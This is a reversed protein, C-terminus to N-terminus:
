ELLAGSERETNAHTELVREAPGAGAKRVARPAADSRRFEPNGAGSEGSQVSVKDARVLAEGGWSIM